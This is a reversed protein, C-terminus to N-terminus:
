CLDNSHITLNSCFYFVSISVIDTSMYLARTIGAAEEGSMKHAIILTVLRSFLEDVYHMTAQLFYLVYHSSRM